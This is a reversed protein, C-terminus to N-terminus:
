SDERSRSWKRKSRRAKDPMCLQGSVLDAEQEEGGGVVTERDVFRSGKKETVTVLAAPTADRM